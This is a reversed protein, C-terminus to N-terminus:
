ILNRAALENELDAYYILAAVLGALGFLSEMVLMALV